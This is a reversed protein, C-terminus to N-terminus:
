CFGSTMENEKSSSHRYTRADNAQHKPLFPNYLYFVKLQDVHIHAFLIPRTKNQATSCTSREVGVVWLASSNRRSYDANHQYDESNKTIEIRKMRVFEPNNNSNPDNKSHVENNTLKSLNVLFMPKDPTTSIPTPTAKVPKIKVAEDWDDENAAAATPPTASATAEAISLSPLTVDAAGWDDDDDDDDDYDNDKDVVAEKVRSTEAAIRKAADEKRRLQRLNLVEKEKAKTVWILCDEEDYSVISELVSKAYHLFLLDDTNTPLKKGSLGQLYVDLVARVVGQLFGVEGGIKTIVFGLSNAKAVDKYFVHEEDLETEKILKLLRRIHPLGDVITTIAHLPNESEDCNPTTTTVAIIHSLHNKLASEITLPTCEVLNAM